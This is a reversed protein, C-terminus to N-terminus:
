SSTTTAHSIHHLDVLYYETVEERITEDDLGKGTEPDKGHLM